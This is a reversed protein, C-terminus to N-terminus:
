MRNTGAFRAENSCGTSGGVEPHPWSSFVALRRQDDTTEECLQGGRMKQHSRRAPQRYGSHTLVAEELSVRQLFQASARTPKATGTEAAGPLSLPEQSNCLVQRLGSSLFSNLGAAKSLLTRM